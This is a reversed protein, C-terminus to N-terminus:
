GSAERKFRPEAKGERLRIEIEQSARYHEASEGPAPDRFDPIGIATRRSRLKFLAAAEAAVLLEIRSPAARARRGPAAARAGGRINADADSLPDDRTADSRTPTSDDDQRRRRLREANRGSAVRAVEYAQKRARERYLSHNVVRWGWGRAPDLLELRAGESERSRSRLDPSCFRTMCAEVEAVPLGAIGALYEHTVDIEGAKNAQSLVLCWLGIDPWRGYLTGTVISSFLPVYGGM